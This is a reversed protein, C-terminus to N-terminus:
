IIHKKDQKIRARLEEATSFKAVPRIYKSILVDIKKGTKIAAIKEDVLHVELTPKDRDFTPCPGLHILAKGKESDLWAEGAYVGHCPLIKTPPVTLNITPYGLKKGRGEGKAVRGQILYFHGLWDVAKDLKSELLFERIMSSSVVENNQRYLPVTFTSFDCKAGLDAMIKMDGHCKWGFHYDEGAVVARVQLKDKLIESVFSWPELRAAKEDFPLVYLKSVGLRDLWYAREELTTLLKVPSASGKINRPHPDLTLVGAPLNRERALAVAKRLVAQHGLHIGDFIGLALVQPPYSKKDRLSLEIIKLPQKM